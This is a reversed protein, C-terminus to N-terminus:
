LASFGFIYAQTSLSIARASAAYPVPTLLRPDGTFTQLQWISRSSEFCVFPRM